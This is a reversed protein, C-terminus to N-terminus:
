CNWGLQKRLSQKRQQWHLLPLHALQLLLSKHTLNYTKQYNCACFIGLYLAPGFVDREFTSLYFKFWQSFSIRPLKKSFFNKNGCEHRKIDIGYELESFSETWRPEGWLRGRGTTPVEVQQTMPLFHACPRQYGWPGQSGSLGTSQQHKGEPTERMRKRSHFVSCFGQKPNWRKGSISNSWDCIRSM